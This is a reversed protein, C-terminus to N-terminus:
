RKPKTSLEAIRELSGRRRTRRGGPTLRLPNGRLDTRAGQRQKAKAALLPSIVRRLAVAESLSFNKRHKNEAWEGLVISELNVVHVPIPEDRFRTKPWALLRRAGAILRDDQTITIPQLLGYEDISRALAELDGYDKRHRDGCSIDAPSRTPAPSTM